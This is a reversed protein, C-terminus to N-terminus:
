RKSASSLYRSAVYVHKARQAKRPTTRCDAAEAEAAIEFKRKVIPGTEPRLELGADGDPANPRVPASSVSKGRRTAMREMALKAKEYEARLKANEAEMHKQSGLQRKTAGLKTKLQGLRATLVDRKNIEQVVLAKLRAPEVRAPQGGMADDGERTQLLGALEVHFAQVQAQDRKYGDVEHLLAKERGSWAEEQAQLMEQAETTLRRETEELAQKKKV